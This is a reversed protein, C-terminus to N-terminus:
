RSGKPLPTFPRLERRIQEYLGPVWAPSRSLDTVPKATRLDNPALIVEVNPASVRTVLVFLEEAAADGVALCGISVAKGHIFIDGGPRTRGEAKAHKRDFANPYTIKMSLHYSSNPNLCEIGYIGEPVQRDGERLKPGATGSAALVRYAHVFVWKGGKEAWLELRKEAKLGLLAIRKPPYPVGVRDFRPLFRKGAAPGCIRLVDAVSRQGAVARVLPVWLSRGRTYLISAGMVLVIIALLPWIRRLTM